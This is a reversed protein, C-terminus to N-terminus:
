AERKRLENAVVVLPMPFTQYKFGLGSRITPDNQQLGALEAPDRVQLIGVGWGGEPDAVAGFAIAAGREALDTWYAVHQGMLRKESESMDQQFTPRPPLLRCLFYSQTSFHKELFGLVREWGESHSKCSEQREGFGTHRVTVRTGGPIGDIRYTVTSVRGEDWDPKWTKVLKRPPDLELYEGEVSFARGDAMRGRARWRGGVRLDASWEETRYTDPSGWWRPIENPDTLARFVREAAAAVEVTALIVGESLDAVARASQRVVPSM